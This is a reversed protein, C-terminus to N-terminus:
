RWCPSRGQEAVVPADPGQPQWPNHRAQRYDFIAVHTQQRFELAPFQRALVPAVTAFPILVLGRGVIHDLVRAGM